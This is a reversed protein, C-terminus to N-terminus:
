RRESTDLVGSRVTPSMGKALVQEYRTDAKLGHTRQQSVAFQGNCLAIVRTEYGFPLECNVSLHTFSPCETPM